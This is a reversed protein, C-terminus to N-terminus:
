MKQTACGKGSYGKIKLIDNVQDINDGIAVVNGKYVGIMKDPYQETLSQMNKSIFNQSESFEDMRQKRLIDQAYSPNTGNLYSIREARKNADLFFKKPMRIPM